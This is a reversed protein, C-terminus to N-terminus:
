CYSFSLSVHYFQKLIKICNSIVNLSEKRRHFFNIKEIRKKQRVFLLVSFLLVKKRQKYIKQYLSFLESEEEKICYCCSAFALLFSLILLKRSRFSNWSKMIINFTLELNCLSYFFYSLKDKKREKKESFLNRENFKMEACHFLLNKKFNFIHTVYHCIIPSRPCIISLKLM